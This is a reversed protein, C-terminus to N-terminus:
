SIHSMYMFFFDCLNIAKSVDYIDKSSEIEASLLVSQEVKQEPLLPEIGSADQLAGGLLKQVKSKIQAKRRKYMLYPILAERVQGIAQQVILLVALHQLLVSFQM